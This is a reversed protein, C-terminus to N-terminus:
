GFCEMASVAQLRMMDVGDRGYADLFRETYRDTGLNYRLSWIGWFLDIHRDGVGGHAVDIFASLRWNDLVVNPLCYDGHILTDSRLLAARQMAYRYCADPTDPLKDFILMDKNFAGAAYGERLRGLYLATSNEVPCGEHSLDHLARLEMGLVESLRQPEALYHLHTCDDGKAARTLLWDQGDSIYNLVEVGLGKNYFYGTMAAEDALADKQARKLYFGEGKDIFWVQAEPSSSSDFMQAHRLFDHMQQPFVAIDATVPTKQM